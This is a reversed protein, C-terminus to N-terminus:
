SKKNDAYGDIHIKPQSCVEDLHNAGVVMRNQSSARYLKRVKERSGRNVPDVFEGKYCSRRKVCYFFM